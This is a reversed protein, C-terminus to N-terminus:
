LVSSDGQQWAHCVHTTYLLHQGGKILQLDKPMDHLNLNVSLLKSRTSVKWFQNHEAAAFSHRM